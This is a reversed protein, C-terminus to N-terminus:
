PLGLIVHDNGLGCVYFWITKKAGGIETFLWIMHTIEGKQNLTGDINKVKILNKLTFTSIRNKAVFDRDVFNGKAGCDILGKTEIIKGKEAQMSLLIHSSMEQSDALLVTFVQLVEAKALM